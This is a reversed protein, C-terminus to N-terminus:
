ETAQMPTETVQDSIENDAEQDFPSPYNYLEYIDRCQKYVVQAWHPDPSFRNKKYKKLKELQPQVAQRMDEVHELSLSEYLKEMESLPNAALDEYRVEHLNGAPILNKHAEYNEIALMYNRLVDEELDGYLSKGLTNGDIMTRRLHCTSNFVDLPNRYIYVFQANPFMKLITKVRYTHSPSKLVVQRPTRITIKKLLYVLADKWREQQAPALREIDLHGHFADMDEPFALGMYPSVQALACLALEDEQPVDWHIPMNDMPRTKPVFPATLRKVVSETMLFHNPFLTQYLTPSTFQPDSTLLNHILTTGSRWHGLIFVPDKVLKENRIRSGYVLHEVGRMVSNYLGMPPLSLIRFARSWHMSPRKCLLECMGGTTMGHWIM